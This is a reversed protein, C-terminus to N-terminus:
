WNRQVGRRKACSPVRVGGDRRTPRKRCDKSPTYESKGRCTGGPREIGNRLGCRENRNRRRNCWLWLKASGRHNSHVLLAPRKSGQVRNNSGSSKNPGEAQIFGPRSAVVPS